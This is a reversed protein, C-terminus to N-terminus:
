ATQASPLRFIHEPPLLSLDLVVKEFLGQAMGTVCMCEVALQSSLSLAAICTSHVCLLQTLSGVTISLLTRLKGRRHRTGRRVTTQM